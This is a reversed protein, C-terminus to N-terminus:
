VDLKWPARRPRSLKKNAEADDFRHSLPDWKLQKGTQLAIV